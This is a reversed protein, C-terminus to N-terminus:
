AGPVSIMTYQARGFSSDAAVAAFCRLCAPKLFIRGRSPPISAHTFAPWGMSGASDSLFAAQTQNAYFRQIRPHKLRGSLRLDSDSELARFHDVGHDAKVRAVSYLHKFRRLKKPSLLTYHKNSALRSVNRPILSQRFFSRALRRGECATQRRRRATRGGRNTPATLARPVPLPAVQLCDFQNRRIPRQRPCGQRRLGQVRLITLPLARGARAPNKESRM